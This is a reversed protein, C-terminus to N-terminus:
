DVIIRRLNQNIHVLTEYLFLNHNDTINVLSNADWSNNAILEVEDMYNADMDTLDIMFHNMCIRGVIIVDQGSRVLKVQGSNSLSRPIGEYYGLPLVGIRSPRTATFSRGYSVTDGTELDLIKTIKSRLSLVPRLDQLQNYADDAPLLPNFGYLALGPRFAVKAVNTLIVKTSGASQALHIYRPDFGAVTVLDVLKLFLDAQFETFENNPSDSDALHSMLGEFELNPFQQILKCLAIVQVPNAGYRSMGTNIELHIKVRHGSRGLAQITQSDHVVFTFHQNYKLNHYNVSDIYGMILVPQQSFQRIRLAEFYGDVCVYTPHRDDLIKIIEELGHGYANSKLVPWLQSNPQLSQILDYNHLLNSKSIQVTNLTAFEREFGQIFNNIYSKIGAM